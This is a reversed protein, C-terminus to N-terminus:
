LAYDTNKDTKIPRSHAVRGCAGATECNEM